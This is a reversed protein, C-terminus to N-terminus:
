LVVETETDEHQQEQLIAALEDVPTAKVKDLFQVARQQEERPPLYSGRANASRRLRMATQRVLGRRYGGTNQGRKVTGNAIRQHVAEAQERPNSRRDEWWGFLCDTLRQIFDLLIPGWEIGLFGQTEGDEGTAFQDTLEHVFRKTSLM